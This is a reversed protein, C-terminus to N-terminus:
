VLNWEYQSSAAACRESHQQSHMRVERRSCHADFL